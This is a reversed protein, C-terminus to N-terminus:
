LAASTENLLIFVSHYRPWHWGCAKLVIKVVNRLVPTGLGVILETMQIAPGHSHLWHCSSYSFFFSSFRPMREYLFWTQIWDTTMKCLEWWHLWRPNGWPRPPEMREVRDDCPHTHRTYVLLLLHCPQKNFKCKLWKASTRIWLWKCFCNPNLAKSLLM